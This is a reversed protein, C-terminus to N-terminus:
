SPKLPRSQEPRGAKRLTNRSLMAWRLSQNWRSSIEKLRRGSTTRPRWCAPALSDMQHRWRRRFISWSTQRQPAQGPAGHRARERDINTAPSRAAPAEHPLSMYASSPSYRTWSGGHSAARSKGPEEHELAPRRGPQRWSSREASTQTTRTGPPPSPAGEQRSAHVRAPRCPARHMNRGKHVSAASGHRRGLIRLHQPDAKSLAKTAMPRHVAERRAADRDLGRLAPSETSCPRPRRCHEGIAM